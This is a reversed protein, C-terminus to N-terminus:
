CTLVKINNGVVNNLENSLPQLNPFNSEPKQSKLTELILPFSPRKTPEGQWCQTILEKFFPNCDSPIDPREGNPVGNLIQYEEWDDFPLKLSVLELAIMAFSYVDM